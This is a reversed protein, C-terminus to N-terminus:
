GRRLQRAEAPYHGVLCYFTSGTSWWRLHDVQVQNTYSPDFLSLGSLSM